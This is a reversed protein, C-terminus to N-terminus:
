PIHKGAHNPNNHKWGNGNVNKMREFKEDAQDQTIKGTEVATQLKERLDDASWYKKEYRIRGPMKELKEDAQDQTIEGAEVATQLKERLDDASWYKKGYRIRGPMKELREDAQEQTIKGAEVATQLKERLYEDRSFTEYTAAVGILLLVCVSLTIGFRMLIKRDVFPRRM